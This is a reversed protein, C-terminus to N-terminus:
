RFDFIDKHTNWNIESIAEAQYLIIVADPQTEAIYAEVSGDFSRLDISDMRSVGLALFPSCANDFSNSIVLIHKDEQMNNYISLCAPDGNGYAAYPNLNYYDKKEIFDMKYIVSFDGTKDIGTNYMICRFDTPYKPYILSIDEPTTLALTVKKGYSGLFWDEYVVYEFKDDELISTDISYDCKENLEQAIMRAAWLGTETQWHHDTRYFLEHHVQNSHNFKDRLDLYPINNYDLGELLADANQNSYDLKGSVDLDSYKCIKGPAQVYLFDIDQQECYQHLNRVSDINGSVDVEDKLLALYGDDLKVVSNYDTYVSVNWGILMEYKKALHVFYDYGLLMSNTYGDIKDEIQLIKSTIKDLMSVKVVVEEIGKFPYRERWNIMEYEVKEAGMQNDEIVGMDTNGIFVFQTFANDMGFQEVLIQRTLFRVIITICFFFMISMCIRMIIDKANYRKLTNAGKFILIYLLIIPQM